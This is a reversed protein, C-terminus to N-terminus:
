RGVPEAITGPPPDVARGATLRLSAAVLEKMAEQMNPPTRALFYHEHRRAMPQLQDYLLQAEAALAAAEEEPTRAVPVPRPEATAVPFAEAM